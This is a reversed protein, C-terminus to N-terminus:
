GGIGNGHQLHKAADAGRRLEFDPAHVIDRVSRGIMAEPPVGLWDEYARNAYRYVLDRDVFAILVPLADTVLRLEAERERQARAALVHDTTESTVCFLGRVTGDRDRLPSYSFTWWTREPEGRRAMVVPMDVHRSGRGELADEVFPRVAPWANPWLEPLTTGLAVPLRPGLLPRYADNFFFHLDPGWALYMSEPSDLILDVAFRLVAPWGEPPGLRTASWDFARMEAATAGGAHPFTPPDAPM